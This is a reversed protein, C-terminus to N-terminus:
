KDFQCVNSLSNSGHLTRRKGWHLLSSGNNNNEHSVLKTKLQIFQTTQKIIKKAKRLHRLSCFGICYLPPGLQPWVESPCHVSVTNDITEKGKDQGVFSYFNFGISCLLPGRLWMKRPCHRLSPTIGVNFVVEVVNDRVPFVNALVRTATVHSVSM